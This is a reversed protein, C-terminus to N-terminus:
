NMKESNKNQELPLRISFIQIKLGIRRRWSRCIKDIIEQLYIILISFLQYSIRNLVFLFIGEDDIVSTKIEGIDRKDVDDDMIDNLLIPLGFVVFWRNTIEIFM